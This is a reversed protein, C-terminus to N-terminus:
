QSLLSQKNAIAERFNWLHNVGGANRIKNIEDMIGEAIVVSRSYQSVLSTVKAAHSQPQSYIKAFCQTHSKDVYHTASM